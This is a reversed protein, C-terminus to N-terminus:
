AMTWMRGFPWRSRMAISATATARFSYESTSGRRCTMCSDRCALDDRMGVYWTIVLKSDADIAVWTWADGQGHALKDETAHKQKCGVFLWIEDVQVVMSNLNILTESQYESCARGLDCLLKVVANKAAGKM